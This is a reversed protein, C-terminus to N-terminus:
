AEEIRDVSVKVGVSKFAQRILERIAHREEQENMPLSVRCKECRKKALDFSISVEWM